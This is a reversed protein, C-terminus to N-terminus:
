PDILPGLWGSQISEPRSQEVYLAAKSKMWHVFDQCFQEAADLDACVISCSAGSLSYGRLRILCEIQIGTPHLASFRELKDKVAQRKARSPLTRTVRIALPRLSKKGLVLDESSFEERRM